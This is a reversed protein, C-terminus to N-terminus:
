RLLSMGDRNIKTKDNRKEFPVFSSMFMGHTQLFYKPHARCNCEMLLLGINNM